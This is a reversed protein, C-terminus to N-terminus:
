YLEPIINNALLACGNFAAIGVLEQINSALLICGHFVEIGISNISTRLNINSLSEPLTINGGVGDEAVKSM